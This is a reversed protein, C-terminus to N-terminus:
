RRNDHYAFSVIKLVTPKFIIELELFRNPGYERPDVVDLRVTIVCITNRFQLNKEAQTM